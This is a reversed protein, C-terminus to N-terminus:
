LNVISWVISVEFYNGGEDAFYGNDLAEEIIEDENQEDDFRYNDKILQVFLKEAQEVQNQTDIPDDENLIPFSEVSEIIGAQIQIVNIIRM